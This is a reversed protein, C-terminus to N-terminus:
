DPTLFIEEFNVDFQFRKIYYLCLFFNNIRIQEYNILFPDKEDGKGVFFEVIDDWFLLFCVSILMSISVRHLFRIELIYDVTVGNPIYDIKEFGNPIRSQYETLASIVKKSLIKKSCYYIMKIVIKSRSIGSAVSLNVISEFADISINASTRM